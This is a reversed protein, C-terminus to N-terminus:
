SIKVYVFGSKCLVNCITAIIKNSKIIKNNSGRAGYVRTM